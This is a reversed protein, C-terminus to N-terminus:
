SKREALTDHDSGHQTQFPKITTRFFYKKSKNINESYFSLLINTTYHIIKIYDNDRSLCALFINLDYLM